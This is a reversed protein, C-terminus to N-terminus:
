NKRDVKVLNSFDSRPFQIMVHCGQGEESSVELHHGLRKCLKNCLYLGIGTSKRYKRGNSGTFGKKCVSEVEGSPIGIGNDKVHLLVYEKKVEGYIYLQLPSKGAYKISNGVIQNIIFYLWKSDSYVTAALDHLDLIARMGILERKHHLIVDEVVGSLVIERILYDKEVDSSRAYFLAQETYDEIQEVAEQMGAPITDQRNEMIMKIAAIPVKVEHIWLEIYEKYEKANKEHGAAWEAASKGMMRIVEHLMEEEQRRAKPMMEPLLYKKELAEATILLDNLYMRWRRYDIYTIVFYGAFLSVAVYIM